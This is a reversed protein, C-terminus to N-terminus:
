NQSKLKIDYSGSMHTIPNLLEGVPLIM